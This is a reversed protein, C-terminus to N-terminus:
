STESDMGELYDDIEQSKFGLARLGRRLEDRDGKVRSLLKRYAKELARSRAQPEEEIGITEAIAAAATSRDIGRERLDRELSAPGAAKAGSRALRSAAYARAYRLDDLFGEASLRDLALAAARGSFGRQELKARLLFRSQEARALLALGRKHAERADAALKLLEVAGEELEAGPALLELKFGLTELLELEVLFSSGGAAVIATGSAGKRVSEIRV